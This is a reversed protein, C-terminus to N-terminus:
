VKLGCLYMQSKVGASVGKLKITKGLGKAERGAAIIVQLVSLDTRKVATFDVTVVDEKSLEEKLLEYINRVNKVTANELVM